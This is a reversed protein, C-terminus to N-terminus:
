LTCIHKGLSKATHGNRLEQANRTELAGLELGRSNGFQSQQGWGSAPSVQSRSAQNGGVRMRLEGGNSQWSVGRAEDPVHCWRSRNMLKAKERRM